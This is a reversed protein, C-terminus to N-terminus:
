PASGSVEGAAQPATAFEVIRAVVEEWGYDLPIMHGSRRQYILKKNTSKWGEFYKEAAPTSIVHDDPALIMLLPLDCQGAQGRNLDLVAFTQDVISRPTFQLQPITEIVQPDRVDYPFPSLVIETFFLTRRAFEHWFRTPFLPSRDNSVEIAPAILILGDIEPRRELWYRLTLAAGLSHAVVFVRRHRSQLAQVEADIAAIWDSCSYRAYEQVRMGFGPLRMVRCTFPGQQALAPALRQYVVPSFNIGHVLLLGTEGDGVEYAAAGLQVGSEDWTLSQEYQALRALVVRSYVLDGAFWVLILTAILAGWQRWRRGRRRRVPAVATTTASASEDSM